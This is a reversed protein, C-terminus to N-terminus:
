PSDTIGTDIFGASLDALMKEVLHQRGPSFLNYNPEIFTLQAPINGGGKGEMLGPWANKIAEDIDATITAIWHDEVGLLPSTTGILNIDAAVLHDILAQNGVGPPIYVTQVANDILTDALVLWQSSDSNEPAEAFMPYTNYPPYTQRCLGCFFVVGNLFGQRQAIGAESDSSSIVGVRWEPTAVAALYGALFGIKDPTSQQDDIITLNAAPELGPITVGLFQTAPAGQALEVLGPDPPIAALVSIEAMSEGPSFSARQEYELGESEALEALIVSVYEALAQDSGPQTILVVKSQPFIPTAAETPEVPTASPETIVEPLTPVAQTETPEADTPTCAFLTLSSLLLFLILLTVRRGQYEHIM